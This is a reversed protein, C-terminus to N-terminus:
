INPTYTTTSHSSGLMPDVSIQQMGSVKRISRTNHPYLNLPPLNPHEIRTPSSVHPRFTTERHLGYIDSDIPELVDNLQFYEAQMSLPEEYDIFGTNDFAIDDKPTTPIQSVIPPEIYINEIPGPAPYTRKPTMVNNGITEYTHDELYHRTTGRPTLTAWMIRSDQLSDATCPYLVAESQIRNNKPQSITTAPLSIAGGKQSSRFKCRLLLTALLVSIVIICLCSMVLILLWTDDFLTGQQPMEVYQVGDVKWDCRHRCLSKNLRSPQIGEGVIESGYQLFLPIPPPPIYLISDPPPGMMGCIGCDTDNILMMLPFNASTM